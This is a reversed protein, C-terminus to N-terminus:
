AIVEGATQFLVGFSQLGHHDYFKNERLTINTSYMIAAGGTNQFAENQYFDNYHSYMYHIGYRTNSITNGSIETHNAFSFYIGDRAGDIINDKLLNDSSHFLHIGNGRRSINLEPSGYITNGFLENGNSRELYIGHLSDEIINHNIKNHNSLVKIGAFDHDLSTGSHQITINEITIGDEKLTIVDSNGTGRIVTNDAGKLVIAKDIIIDEEYVHDELQITDGPEASEILESIPTVEQALVLSPSFLVGILLIFLLKRM